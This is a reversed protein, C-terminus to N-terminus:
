NVLYMHTASNIYETPDFAGDFTDSLANITSPPLHSYTGTCLPSNKIKTPLM